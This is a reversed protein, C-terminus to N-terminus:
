FKYNVRADWFGPVNYYRYGFLYATAWNKMTCNKCELTVTLPLSSPKIAVGGDLTTYANQVGAPLGETGVNQTGTWQVGVNPTLTVGGFSFDYAAHLSANGHPTNEPTGLNGYADVIGQGCSPNTATPAAQCAKQQAAVGASPDYYQAQLLGVNLSLTFEEIPRWALETELGYADFDAANTTVFSGAADSLSQFAKVDEYFFNMNLRIKHDLWESRMGTEYSWVTEPSFNNFTAASFALGNWGGGQFGRTASVYFMLDPDVRYQLAVRPTFENATLATEYGAAQIDATTYGTATNPTAELTKREHTFRGGVTLTLADTFKYDGQAYVASSRTDNITTEDGLPIPLFPAGILIGLNAVAGFNDDNKEYLYFAGATYNFRDGVDGTWKIEQSYQDSKLVQALAFGGIPDQDYPVLPGFASDPFDVGTLQKLGRYGTIFNLTGGSLGIKLNSMAGYSRVDVGQGLTGKEGSLFPALAGGNTSFGSYSVRDSGNVGGGSVPQNLVNAANNDIYDGSLNWSIADTPLYSIAERLGWDKTKNLTQGTTVDQVYGEDHIGFAAFRTLLQDNIPADIYGHGFVRGFAGYGVELDGGFVSAPKQLSVLIAGGTSNRGFLTGQPGRLVQLQDLGFLALNNANQRGIYIDDVYTGVQPEFTPFSQTQGLGRLFYVNASAQGVNNAAIFNPVERAIDLTSTVQQVNLASASFSSVALPVDQLNQERRQATVVVEDLSGGSANSDATAASAVTAAGSGLAVAAALTGACLIKTRDFPERRM